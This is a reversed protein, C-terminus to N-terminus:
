NSLEFNKAVPYVSQAIKDVRLYIISQSIFSICVQMYRHMQTNNHFNDCKNYVFKALPLWRDHYLLETM